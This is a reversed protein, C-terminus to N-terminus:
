TSAMRGWANIPFLLREQVGATMVQPGFEQVHMERRAASCELLILVDWEFDAYLEGFM